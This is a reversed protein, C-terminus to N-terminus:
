RLDKSRNKMVWWDMLSVELKSYELASSALTNSLKKESTLCRSFPCGVSSFCSSIM